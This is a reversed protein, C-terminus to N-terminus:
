VRMNKGTYRQGYATSLSDIEEEIQAAMAALGSLTLPYDVLADQLTRIEEKTQPIGEVKEGLTQQALLGSLNHTLEEIKKETEARKAKIEEKENQAKGLKTQLELIKQEAQKITM